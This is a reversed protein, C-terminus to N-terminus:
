PGLTAAQLNLIVYSAIAYASMIIALGIVGQLIRKKSEAVTEENGGATMWKFGAILIIVVAVIGLLSLAVNIISTVTVILDAEGLGPVRAADIGFTDPPAQMHATPAFAIMAVVAALVAFLIRYRSFATINTM